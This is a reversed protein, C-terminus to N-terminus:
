GRGNGSLPVARFPQVVPTDDSLLDLPQHPLALKQATSPDVCPRATASPQSDRQSQESRVPPPCDATPLPCDATPLPQSTPKTEDGSAVAGQESAVASQGSGVALDTLKRTLQFDRLTRGLARSWKDQYRHLREGDISDDFGALAAPSSQASEQRERETLLKTLRHYRQDVLPWLEANLEAVLRPDLEPVDFTEGREACATRALEDNILMQIEHLAKIQDNLIAQVNADVRDYGLLRTVRDFGVLREDPLSPPTSGDQQRALFTWLGTWQDLLARCGESTAELSNVLGGARLLPINLREAERPVLLLNEILLDVSTGASVGEEAGGGQEVIRETLIACEHADARDLQWSIKVMRKVLYAEMDTRPSLDATWTELRNQYADADEHPLVITEAYLGHRLANFKVKDKGEQTKPGTSKQANKRNAEIKRESCM